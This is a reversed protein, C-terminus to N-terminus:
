KEQKKIRIQWVGEGDIIEYPYGKKDCMRPITEKAAPLYDTTVELIEGNELKSLAESTKILPHPCTQGKIDLVKDPSLDKLGM